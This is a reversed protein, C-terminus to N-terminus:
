VLNRFRTLKFCIDELTVCDIEKANDGKILVNGAPTIGIIRHMVKFHKKRLTFAVVDGISVVNPRWEGYCITITGMSPKMSKGFMIMVSSKPQYEKLLWEKLKQSNM